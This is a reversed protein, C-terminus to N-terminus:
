HTFQYNEKACDKNDMEQQLDVWRSSQANHGTDQVFIVKCNDGISWKFTLYCNNHRPALSSVTTGSVRDGYHEVLLQDLSYVSLEGKRM